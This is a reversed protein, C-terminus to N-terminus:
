SSGATPECLLLLAPLHTRSASRLTSAGRQLHRSPTRSTALKRVNAGKPRVCQLRRRVDALPDHSETAFELRQKGQARSHQIRHKFAQATSCCATPAHCHETAGGCAASGQQYFDALAYCSTYAVAILMASAKLPATALTLLLGVSGARSRHALLVATVMLLARASVYVARRRTHDPM